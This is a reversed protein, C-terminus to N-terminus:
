DKHIQKSSSPLKRRGACFPCGTNGVKFAAVVHGIEAKWVHIASRHCRWWAHANTMPPVDEPTMDENRSPHWQKAVTPYRAALSSEKPIVRRGSCYPCGHGELTRSSIRAEWEHGKKCRWWVIERGSVPVDAATLRRNSRKQRDAPALFKNLKPLFSGRSTDTRIVRNKTPHWEKAVEPAQVSLRNDDSVYKRACFPCGANAVARDKVSTEWEHKKNVACRWWAKKHSGTTLEDPQLGDNKTPHWELVLDPRCSSLSNSEDVQKGACFPCGSARAATRNCVTAQWIHAYNNECQWWVLERGRAAVDNPGLTGNLECHWQKAIDPFRKLLSKDEILCVPCGLGRIRKVVRQQWTHETNKTCQWWVVKQSGPTVADPSLGINQTPHWERAIDPFTISLAKSPQSVKASM